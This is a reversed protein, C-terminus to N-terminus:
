VAITAAIPGSTLGGELPPKVEPRTVEPRAELTDALIGATEGKPTLYKKAARDIDVRKVKPIREEFAYGFTWDGAAVSESVTRIENFIGDREEAM